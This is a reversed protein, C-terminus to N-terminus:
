ARRLYLGPGVEIPWLGPRGSQTEVVHAPDIPDPDDTCDIGLRMAFYGRGDLDRVLQSFEMISARLGLARPHSGTRRESYYPRRLSPHHFSNARRLLDALFRANDALVPKSTDSPSAQSALTAWPDKVPTTSLKSKEQFRERATDSVFTDELFWEVRDTWQSESRENLLAAARQKFSEVPWRLVFDDVEDQVKM